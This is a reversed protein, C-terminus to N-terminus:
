YPSIEHYTEKGREPDFRKEYNAFQARTTEDRKGEEILADIFDAITEQSLGPETRDDSVDPDFAGIDYLMKLTKQRQTPTGTLADNVTQVIIAQRKPVRVERGNITVTVMDNLAEKLLLPLSVEIEKKKRKAGKPNGSVGPRFRTNMPPKGKGVEYPRDDYKGM